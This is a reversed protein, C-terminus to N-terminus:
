IFDPILDYVSGCSHLFIKENTKSHVFNFIKKHRPKIFKRYMGLSIYTTIQMGVDDGSAVMRVVVEGNKPESKSIDAVEIKKDGLLKVAKM